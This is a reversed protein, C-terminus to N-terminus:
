SLIALGRYWADIFWHIHAAGPFLIYKHLPTKQLQPLGLPSVAPPQISVAHGAAAAVLGKNFLSRSPVVCDGCTLQLLWQANCLAHTQM